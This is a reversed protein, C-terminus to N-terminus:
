ENCIMGFPKVKRTVTTVRRRDTNNVLITSISHIRLGDRSLITGPLRLGYTEPLGEPEPHLESEDVEPTRSALDGDHVALKHLSLPPDRLALVQPRQVEAHEKGTGLSLLYCGVYPPPQVARQPGTGRLHRKAPARRRRGSRPRRM